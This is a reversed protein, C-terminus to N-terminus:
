APIEDCLIEYSSIGTKLTIEEKWIKDLKASINEPLSNIYNGVIGKRVKDSNGGLTLGCAKDVINRYLHDDFQNKHESMFEFSSQLTVIELLRDTLSISLFASIKRIAQQIDKKMAEYSLILVNDNNRQEWWSLLHHWYERGFGYSESCYISESFQQLSISDPEFWWGKLFYYNSILVDKPDRISIIYRGGKPIDIWKLHSKFIRPEAVQQSDLDVDCILARELFPIVRNIEDFNMSGHSRLGHLIQQLWTTGCKPYTSIFIDSAKPSFTLAYHYSDKIFNNYFIYINKLEELSKARFM